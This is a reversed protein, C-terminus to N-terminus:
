KKNMFDVIQENISEQYDWCEDFYKEGIKKLGAQEIGDFYDTFLTKNILIRRNECAFTYVVHDGLGLSKGIKSDRVHCWEGNEKVMHSGAVKIGKYDYLENDLVFKGTAFVSGGEFV